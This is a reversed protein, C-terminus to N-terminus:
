WVRAIYVGIETGTWHDTIGPFSSMVEMDSWDDKVHEEYPNGGHEAHQPYKVIPLSAVLIEDAVRNANGWLELAEEKTMHELVDGLIVADYKVRAEALFELYTRADAVTVADYLDMLSFERIYPEWVEVGHVTPRNGAPYPLSRVMRGYSGSGPGIDLVRKPKLQELHHATFLKGEASSHPM